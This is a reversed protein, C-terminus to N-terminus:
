STLNQLETDTLAENFVMVQKTKSYFKNGGSGDDFGLTKLGTPMTFTSTSTDVEVGNVWLAFDGSKYKFAVKNFELEDTVYTSLAIQSTGNYIVGFVRNTTSSYELRVINIPSANNDIAFRRVSGAGLSAIEAFFVGESDNFEASTGAGNCVDASRTVTSGSTPIYSTPYSGLEVQVGYFTESGTASSSISTGNTSIAGWLGVRTSGASTTATAKLRWYSGYDDVSIETYDNGTATNFTGNYSDFIIYKNNVDMQIGSYTSVASTKKKIFVSLTHAAATTTANNEIREYGSSNDDEITYANTQGTLANNVATVTPTGSTAWQTLEESYTLLNTRSPELLLAPCDQVVGDLLPYDLRPVGSAVSEILGDKNVRTASSARTHDFDGDGNAPLVSYLTGNPSDGKYGSPIQVLSAKDYM